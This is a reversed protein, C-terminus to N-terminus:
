INILPFVTKSLFYFVSQIGLVSEGCSRCKELNYFNPFHMKITISYMCKQIYKTIIYKANVDLM